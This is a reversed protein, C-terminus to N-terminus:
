GFSRGSSLCLVCSTPQIVCHIGQCQKELSNLRFLRLALRLSNCEYTRALALQDADDDVTLCIQLLLAMQHDWGVGDCVCVCVCECVNMCVCMCVYM